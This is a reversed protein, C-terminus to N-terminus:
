RLQLLFLLEKISALNYLKLVNAFKETLM